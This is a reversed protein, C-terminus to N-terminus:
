GKFFHGDPYSAYGQLLSFSCMYSTYIRQLLPFSCQLSDHIIPTVYKKLNYILLEHLGDMSHTGFTKYGNMHLHYDHNSDLYAGLYHYTLCMRLPWQM